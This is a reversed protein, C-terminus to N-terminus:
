TSREKNIYAKIDKKKYRLLQGIRTSDVDTANYALYGGYKNAIDELEEADEKAGLKNPNYYIYADFKNEPIKITELGGKNIVDWAAEKGMTTSKMTIFGVGRRGDIVTQIAHEDRYAEAARISEKLIDMLKIM